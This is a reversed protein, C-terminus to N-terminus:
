KNVRMLGTLMKSIEEAENYIREKDFTNSDFLKRKSIIVLTNLVEYVSGKAINYFNGAERRSKRGSGEAINNPISITARRLQEGLSFQHKQPLSEAIQLMPDTFDIAKKWVDLKQFRFM